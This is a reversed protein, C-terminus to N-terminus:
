RQTLRSGAHLIPGAPRRPEACLGFPSVRCDVTHSGWGGPRVQGQSGTPTAAAAAAAAAAPAAPTPTQRRGQPMGHVRHSLQGDSCCATAGYGCGVCVSSSAPSPNPTPTGGGFSDLSLPTAAAPAAKKARPPAPAPPPASAASAGATLPAQSSAGASAESAESRARPVPESTVALRTVKCVVRGQFMPARRGGTTSCDMWVTGVCGAFLLQTVLCCPGTRLCLWLVWRSVDEPVGAQVPLLVQWALPVVAAPSVSSATM